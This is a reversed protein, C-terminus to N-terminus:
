MQYNLQMAQDCYHGKPLLVPPFGATVWWSARVHRRLHYEHQMRFGCQEDHSHCQLSKNLLERKALARHEHEPIGVPSKSNELNVKLHQNQGM